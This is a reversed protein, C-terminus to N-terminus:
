SAGLSRWYDNLAGNTKVFWVIPGILILMGPFYWLGTAGSVPKERGARAYLDGVESSTIYPMVFGVFFALLLALGGGLGRGSHRKMEEHTKFYWYLVYFGLTVIALLICVGTSRTQGIEGGTPAGYPAPAYGQQGYPQPPQQGYPQPAYQGPQGQPAYEDPQGQPRQGQPPQGYGEPQGTPPTTPDQPPQNQETM